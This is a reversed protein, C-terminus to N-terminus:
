RRPRGRAAYTAYMAADAPHPFQGEEGLLELLAPWCGGCRTGAGCRAGLEALSHAGARISTRIRQDTVARCHCIYM